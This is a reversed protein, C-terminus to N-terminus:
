SIWMGTGSKLPTNLFQDVHFSKLTIVVREMTDTSAGVVTMVLTTIAVNASVISITPGTTAYESKHTPHTLLAKASVVNILVVVNVAM